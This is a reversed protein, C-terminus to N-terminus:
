HLQAVGTGEAELTGIPEGGVAKEGVAVVRDSLHLYLTLGWRTAWASRPM